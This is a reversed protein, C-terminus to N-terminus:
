FKDDQKIRMKTFILPKVSVPVKWTWNVFAGQFCSTALVVGKIELNRIFEGLNGIDEKLKKYM